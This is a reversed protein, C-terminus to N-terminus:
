MQARRVQAFNNGSLIMLILILTFVIKMQNQSSMFRKHIKGWAGKGIGMLYLDNSLSFTRYTHYVNYLYLWQILPPIDMIVDDFPFMKRTAPGKHPSDVPWSPNGECLGTLRLKSTKKLRRRFLRKLLCALRRHNSVGDRENHRWQLACEARRFRSYSYLLHINVRQSRPFTTTIKSWM